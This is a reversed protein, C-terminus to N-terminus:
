QANEKRYRKLLAKVRDSAQAGKSLWHETREVNLRLPVEGGRAKPNYFGLREIYRGDRGSRSDTVTVHYFPNKKAGGLSLRITVM